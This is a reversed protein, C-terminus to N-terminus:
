GCGRQRQFSLTDSPNSGRGENLTNRSMSPTHLRMVTDSPNSGRGENLPPTASSPTASAPRTAPTRAAAKTSRCLAQREEPWRRWHRQPELGPRRQANSAAVFGRVYAQVHRQPELGPRRQAAVITTLSGTNWGPTAPTRAGAKTSRTVVQPAVPTLVHTAPTRAGAKTSRRTCRPRPVPGGRHRQPELGPRRQAPRDTMTVRCLSPHRQPELGPRRQANGAWWCATLVDVRHRQPELGPRRQARSPTATLAPTRWTDSPNSGRDENLSM